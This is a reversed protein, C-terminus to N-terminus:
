HAKGCADNLAKCDPCTYPRFAYRNVKPAQKPATTTLTASWMGEGLKFAVGDARVQLSIDRERQDAQVALSTLMEWAESHAEIRTVNV